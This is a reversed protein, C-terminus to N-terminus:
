EIKELQTVRQYHDCTLVKLWQEIENLLIRKTSCNGQLNCNSNKRNKKLEATKLLHTPMDKRWLEQEARTDHREETCKWDTIAQYYYYTANKSFFNIVEKRLYPYTPGAKDCHGTLKVNVETNHAHGSAVVHRSEITCKDVPM